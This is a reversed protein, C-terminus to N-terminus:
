AFTEETTEPTTETEFPLETEPEDMWPEFVPEDERDRAEPEPLAPIAPVPVAPAAAPAAPVAAPVAPVVPAAPVATEARKATTVGAWGEDRVRLAVLLAATTTWAWGLTTIAAVPDIYLTTPWLYLVAFTRPSVLLYGGVGVLVAVVLWPWSRLPRGLAPLTAEAMGYTAWAIVWPPGATVATLPMIVLWLLCSRAARGRAGDGRSVWRGGVWPIQGEHLSSEAAGMEARDLAGAQRQLRLATRRDALTWRREHALLWRAREM